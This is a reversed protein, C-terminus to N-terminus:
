VKELKTVRGNKRAVCCDLDVLAVIGDKMWTDLKGIIVRVTNEGHLPAAPYQFVSWKSRRVELYIKGPVHHAPVQLAVARAGVAEVDECGGSQALCRHHDFRLVEEIRIIEFLQFADAETEM